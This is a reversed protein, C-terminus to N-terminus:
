NKMDKLMATLMEKDYVKGKIITARNTGLNEINELPNKDLIILNAIKNKAISGYFKSLGFFEPGNIISTILAQQPSLGAAVLSQLELHM